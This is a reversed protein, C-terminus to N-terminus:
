DFLEGQASSKSSSSSIGATHKSSDPEVIPGSARISGVIADMTSMLRAIHAELPQIRNFREGISALEFLLGHITPDLANLDEQLKKLLKTNSNLKVYGMEDAMQKFFHDSILITDYFTDPNIIRIFKKCSDSGHGSFSCSAPQLQPIEEVGLIM